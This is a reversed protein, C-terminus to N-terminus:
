PSTDPLYGDVFSAGDTVSVCTRVVLISVQNESSQDCQRGKQDEPLVRDEDEPQDDRYQEIRVIVDYKEDGRRHLADAWIVIINRGVRILFAIPEADRRNSFFLFSAMSIPSVTAAPRPIAVKRQAKGDDETQTKKAQIEPEKGM